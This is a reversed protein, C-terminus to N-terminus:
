RRNIISWDEMPDGDPCQTSGYDNMNQWLERGRSIDPIDASCLFESRAFGPDVFIDSGAAVFHANDLTDDDNGDDFIEAPTLRLKVYGDHNGDAQCYLCIIRDSTRMTVFRHKNNAVPAATDSTDIVARKYRILAGDIANPNKVHPNDPTTRNVGDPAFHDTYFKAM